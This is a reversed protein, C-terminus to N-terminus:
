EKEGKLEKKIKDVWDCFDVYQMGSYQDAIEFFECSKLREAFETIADARTQKHSTMYRKTEKRSIALDNNLREIEAKLDVIQGCLDYQCKAEKELRKTLREIEADKDASKCRELYLTGEYGNECEKIRNELKFIQEGKERLLALADASIKAACYKEAYYPCNICHNEESDSHICCELARMVDDLKLEYQM